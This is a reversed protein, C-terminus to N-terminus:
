TALGTTGQSDADPAVATSHAVDFHVLLKLYAPSAPQRSRITWYKSWCSPTDRKRTHTRSWSTSSHDPASRIGVRFTSLEEEERRVIRPMAKRLPSSIRMSPM